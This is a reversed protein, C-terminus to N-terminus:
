NSGILFPGWFAERLEGSGEYEPGFGNPAPRRFLMEVIRDVSPYPACAVFEWDIIAVIKSNDKESVIVNHPGMDSHVVVIPVEEVIAPISEM